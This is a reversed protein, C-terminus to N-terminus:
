AAVPQEVPAAATTTQIRTAGQAFLTNFEDLASKLTPEAEKSIAKDNVIGSVIEPYRQPMFNLLEAEFRGVDELPVTDM